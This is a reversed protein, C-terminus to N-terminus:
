KYLPPAFGSLSPPANGASNHLKSFGNLLSNDSLNFLFSTQIHSFRLKDVNHIVNDLVFFLSHLPM